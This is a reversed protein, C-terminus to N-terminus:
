VEAARMRREKEMQAAVLLSYTGGRAILDEHRGQEVIRGEEMVLILDAERITSLRHAIVIRTAKLAELEKQIKRETVTDLSSTAEDLLLIAPRHVLARALAMRQRQGGSLSAGGDSLITDYGMPMALIDEHIHAREAAEVVRSLPLSPDSLSINARISAGFLYPHQPVVGVQRRVSRLDLEGLDSGDFFIKGETPQYLGVLLSALTSKGAGSPGVIAVFRNHPIEVSVERVAYPAFPGYRFSVNDLRVSGRLKPAPTAKSSDQERPTELVDDIRDLYSGLLQLQFATTVLQSLPTLFGAALANLALMTGLTLEGQLVQVAGYILVILPSATGLAALTSDVFATLRGRALSTNLVDVYLHSWQEVSRHEAGSAKLTEIGALLNVQYTQSRAETQLAQSMLDRQKKRTFLFLSVRLFGLVLVVVGLGPSAVFLLVLYLSVMFGDLVASLAGSTLIERVTANSSLRMILDGASRQQFFAYPLDVLHDLFDLTMRTDLQTRLYLLLYSRLLSALFNFVVITGLGIALVTLLQVDGRPIVRDVLSGMLLPVALAFLQVLASTIVIRRLVESHSRLLRLYRGVGKPRADEPAFDESPEFTLAIGTFSRDLEDLSVRRRGGAPDVLDAGKPGLREFVVFHNFQWHLISGPPLLRLHELEEVKVGRGRLGFARGGNLLALADAGDRGFGTVKRVDDLRLHKGHYALVMTLSAAGCDSPTTQQVYPVQRRRGGLVLKELAPFRRTLSPRDEPGSGPAGVDRNETGPAEPM